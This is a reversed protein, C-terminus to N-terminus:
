PAAEILRAATVQAGGAARASRRTSISPLRRPHRALRGLYPLGALNARHAEGGGQERGQERGAGAGCVAVAAGCAGHQAAHAM